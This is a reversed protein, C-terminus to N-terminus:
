FLLLFVSYLRQNVTLLSVGVLHEIFIKAHEELDM